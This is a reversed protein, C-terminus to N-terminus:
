VEHMGFWVTVPLVAIKAIKTRSFSPATVKGRRESEKNEASLRNNLM